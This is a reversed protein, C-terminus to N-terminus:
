APNRALGAIEAAIDAPTRGDTCLHVTNQGPYFKQYSLSREASGPTRLGAAIDQEVRGALTRDSADLTVRLIRAKDELGDLLQLATEEQQLVWVFVVYEVEPCDLDERLLARINRMVLAKTAETVSFPHLDWCWDGDLFISPSLLQCLERGVTTKGVGMPGNLVILTKM